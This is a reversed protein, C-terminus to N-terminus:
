HVGILTGTGAITLVGDNTFHDFYMVQHGDRVYATVAPDPFGGPEGFGNWTAGNHFLPQGSVADYYLAGQAVGSVPPDGSVLLRLANLLRM